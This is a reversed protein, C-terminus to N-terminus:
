LHQRRADPRLRREAPQRQGRRAPQGLRRPRPQRTRLINRPRRRPDRQPRHLHPDAFSGASFISLGNGSVQLQHLDIPGGPNLTADAFLDIRDGLARAVEPKPAWLGTALGELNITVKRTAPDELNQALGGMHFTVDEMEIDATQLRDLVLLGNWRSAGGFNVYLVASHLRTRAGPVPLVVAPGRPDGLTGSLTLDRLFNDPGLRLDGTLKLVAGAVDLNDIRLGGATPKVGEVRVTSPGAFFDRFEAPVLPSLGGSFDVSFGLGEDRQRLAVLGQVIRDDDADLSFTVDVQDLPGSGQLRLDVAPTGEIKLLTAM